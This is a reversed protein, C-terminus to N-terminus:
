RRMFPIHPQGFTSVDSIQVTLRQHNQVSISFAFCARRTVNAGVGRNYTQNFMMRRKPLSHSLGGIILDMICAHSNSQTRCTRALHEKGQMM